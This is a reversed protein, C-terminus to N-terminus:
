FLLPFSRLGCEFHVQIRRSAWCSSKGASSGLHCCRQGLVAARARERTGDVHGAGALSHFLESLWLGFCIGFRQHKLSQLFYDSVALSRSLGVDSLKVMKLGGDGVLVNRFTVILLPILAIM